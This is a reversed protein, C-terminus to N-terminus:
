STLVCRSPNDKEFDDIKFCVLAARLLDTEVHRKQEETFVGSDAVLDYARVIDVLWRAEYLSSQKFVKCRGNTLPLRPYLDAYALLGDRTWEAYGKEGSFAFALGASFLQSAVSWHETDGKDPLQGWPKGM